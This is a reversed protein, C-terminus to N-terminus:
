WLTEPMVAALRDIEDDSLPHLHALANRIDWARFLLDADAQSLHVQRTSVSWAMAGLEVVGHRHRGRRRQEDAHGQVLSEVVSKSVRARLVKELHARCGDVMPMLARSQGRWVLTDLDVQNSTLVKAAPSIRLRGDWRDVVGRRWARRLAQPPRAGGTRGAIEAPVLDDATDHPLATVQDALTAVRGDWSQALHEALLLDPGAVEVLVEAAVHERLTTVRGKSTQWPSGRRVEAAVTATDLRGYVDWWWHVRTTVQDVREQVSTPVDDERVVMLLRPREAPPIGHEKVLATFRGVCAGLDASDWGDWGCLVIVKGTMHDGTVLQVLPDGEESIRFAECLRDVVTEEPRDVAAPSVHPVDDFEIPGFTDRAWEPLATTAPSEWHPTELVVVRRSSLPRVRVGCSRLGLVQVLEDATGREVLEDPFVLVCSLGDDLDRVVADLHGRPGPLAALEWTQGTM